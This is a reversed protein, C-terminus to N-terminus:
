DDLGHYAMRALWGSMVMITGILVAEHGQQEWLATGLGFVAACCIICGIIMAVIREGDNMLSELFLYRRDSKASRM